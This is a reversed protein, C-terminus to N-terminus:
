KEFTNGNVTVARDLANVMEGAHVRPDHTRIGTPGHIDTDTKNQTCTAAKRRASGRSWTTTCVTYLILFSLIWGFGLLLSYDYYYCFYNYTHIGRYGMIHLLACDYYSSLPALFILLCNRV